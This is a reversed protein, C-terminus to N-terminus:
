ACHLLVMIEEDEMFLGIM